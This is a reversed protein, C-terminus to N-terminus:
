CSALHSTWLGVALEQCLVWGEERGAQGAVEWKVNWAPGRNWETSFPGEREVNPSTFPFSFWYKLKAKPGAILLIEWVGKANKASEICAFNRVPEDKYKHCNGLRLSLCKAQKVM